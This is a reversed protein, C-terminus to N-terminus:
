TLWVGNKLYFFLPYSSVVLTYLCAFLLSIKKHVRKHTYSTTIGFFTGLFLFLYLFYGVYNYQPKLICFPCHHTPLEYIYTGFFVILSIIANFIFLFNFMSFMYPKKFFYTIFILLANTYFIILLNTHSLAFALSLIGDTLDGYVITCCEVIKTTDIQSLMLLDLFVEASFCVFVFLFLLSKFRTFRLDQTALDWFDVILWFSFLYLNIIKLILTLNGVESANVVGVACMAGVVYSSLEELTYIFFLFLFLKLFLVYRIVTSNLYNFRELKYQLRSTSNFDWKIAIILSFIFAVQAFLFVIADLLAITITSTTILM